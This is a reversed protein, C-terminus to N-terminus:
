SPDMHVKLTQPRNGNESLVTPDTRETQSLSPKNKKKIWTNFVCCVTLSAIRDTGWCPKPHHPENKLM